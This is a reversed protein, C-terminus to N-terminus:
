GPFVPVLHRVSSKVMLCQCNIYTTGIHTLGNDKTIICGVIHSLTLIYEEDGTLHRLFLHGPSYGGIHEIHCQLIIVFQHFVRCLHLSFEVLEPLVIEYYDFTPNSEAIEMSLKEGNYVVLVYDVNDRATRFRLRVKDGTRPEAPIRFRESGDSFLAGYNVIPKYNYIYNIVKQASRDVM